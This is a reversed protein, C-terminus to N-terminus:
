RQRGRLVGAPTQLRPFPWAPPLGALSAAAREYGVPLHAPPRPQPFVCQLSHAGLECRGSHALSPLRVTGRVAYSCHSSSTNADSSSLPLAYADEDQHAPACRATALARTKRRTTPQSAPSAPPRLCLIEATSRHDYDLRLNDGRLMRPSTARLVPPSPRNHAQAPHLLSSVSSSACPMRQILSALTGGSAAVSLLLASGELPASSPLFSPQFDTPSCEPGRWIM